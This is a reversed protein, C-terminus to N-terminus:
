SLLDNTLIPFEPHCKQTATSNMIILLILRNSHIKAEITLHLLMFYCADLHSSYCQSSADILSRLYMWPSALCPCWFCCVLVSPLTGFTRFSEKQIHSWKTSLFHKSGKRPTFCKIPQVHCEWGAKSLKKQLFMDSNASPHSSQMKSLYNWDSSWAELEECTKVFTFCPNYFFREMKHLWLPGGREKKFEILNWIGYWGHITYKGVNDHYIYLYIYWVHITHATHTNIYAMNKGAKKEPPRGDNRWHGWRVAGWQQHPPPWPSAHLPWTGLNKLGLNSTAYKLIFICLIDLYIYQNYIIIYIMIDDNVSTSIWRQICVSVLTCLLWIIYPLWGTKKHSSDNEPLDRQTEFAEYM